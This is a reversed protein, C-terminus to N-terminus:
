TERGEEAGSPLDYGIAWDREPVDWSVDHPRDVVILVAAVHPMGGHWHWEGPDVIVTEGRGVVVRDNEDAVVAEGAVMHILRGSSSVHPRSRAGPELQVFRVQLGDGLSASLSQVQAKGVYTPTAFAELGSAEPGGIVEM